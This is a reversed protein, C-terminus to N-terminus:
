RAPETVGLIRAIERRKQCPFEGAGCMCGTSVSWLLEGTAPDKTVMDTVWTLRAAHWSLALTAIDKLQQIGGPRHEARAIVDPLPDYPEDTM